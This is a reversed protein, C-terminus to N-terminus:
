LNNSTININESELFLSVTKKCLTKGNRTTCFVALREAFHKVRNNLLERIKDIGDQSISKIGSKRCISVISNKSFNAEKEQQQEQTANLNNQETNM